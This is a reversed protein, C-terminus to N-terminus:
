SIEGTELNLRQGDRFQILRNKLDRAQIRNHSLGHTRVRQCYLFIGIGDVCLATEGKQWLGGPLPHWQCEALIKALDRAPDSKNLDRGV